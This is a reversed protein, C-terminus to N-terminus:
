DMCPLPLRHRNVSDLDCCFSFPPQIGDPTFQSMDLEKPSINESTSCSCRSQVVNAGCGKLCDSKKINELEFHGFSHFLVEFDSLTINPHNPPTNGGVKGKETKLFYNSVWPAQKTVWSLALLM